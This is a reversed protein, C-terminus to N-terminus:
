TVVECPVLEEETVSTTLESPMVTCGCLLGNLSFPFSLRELLLVVVAHWEMLIDARKHSSRGFSCICTRGPLVTKLGNGELCNQRVQRSNSWGTKWKKSNQLLLNECVLTM